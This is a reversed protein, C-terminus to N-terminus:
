IGGERETYYWGRVRCIFRYTIPATAAITARVTFTQSSGVVVQITSLQRVSGVAALMQEYSPAPDPGLLIAWTLYGIAVPDDTDFGIGVIILRLNDPVTITVLTAVGGPAINADGIVDAGRGGAPQFNAGPLRIGVQQGLGPPQSPATEVPRARTPIEHALRINQPLNPDYPGRAM